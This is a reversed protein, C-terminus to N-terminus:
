TLSLWPLIYCIYLPAPSVGRESDSGHGIAQLRVASDLRDVPPAGGYDAFGLNHCESLIVLPAM